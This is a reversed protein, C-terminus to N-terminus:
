RVDRTSERIIVEGLAEETRPEEPDSEDGAARPEQDPHLALDLAREGMHELPLRVTTLAPVLDRLTPIDDFGALSVDSPVAVGHARLAALAGVAMVDNVAFLCTADGREALWREALEYGGDRDFGGYLVQPGPLGAAHLGETFGALRERVVILEPPGALVAFRRHGLAALASALRAAGGRNEPVVTDAPLLAQGICAARGGAMRYRELEAALRATHREDALRTGALVIARARQARLTAVHAIEREPDRRTASILVVLGRREAARMVGGALMAFYPDTLDHVVLGVVDSAGHALTRAVLNPTYGLQRAAKEVRHRLESGVRRASAPGLVRSATALSVGALRAVDDLTVVRGVSHGGRSARRPASAGGEAVTREGM